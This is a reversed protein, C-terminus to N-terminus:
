LVLSVIRCHLYCTCPIAPLISKFALYNIENSLFSLKLSVDMEVAFGFRSPLNYPFLRYSILMYSLALSSSFKKV